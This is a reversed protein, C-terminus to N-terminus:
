NERFLEIVRGGEVIMRGWESVDGSPEDRMKVVYEDYCKRILNVDTGGM